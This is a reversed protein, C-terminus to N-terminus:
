NLKLLFVLIMNLLPLYFHYLFEFLVVHYFNLNLEFFLLFYLRCQFLFLFNILNSSVNSDMKSTDSINRVRSIEYGQEDMSQITPSLSYQQTDGKFLGLESIHGNKEDKIGKNKDDLTLDEEFFDFLGGSFYKNDIRKRAM